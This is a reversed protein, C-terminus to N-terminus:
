ARSMYETLAVTMEGIVKAVHLDAQVAAWYAKVKPTAALLDGQGLMPGIGAVFFLSPVLACDALSANAGMAYKGPQIFHELGGLGKALATLQEDVIKANRVKPDIQDFLEFLPTLIYQDAINYVVRMRAREKPDASRLSPAPRTDEIYEGIVSSEPLYFGNDELTPVKELPNIKVYEATHSGGSPVDILQADIGKLYLQLRVRNAYPSLKSDYLKM